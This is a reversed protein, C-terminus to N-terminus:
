ANDDDPIGFINKIRTFEPDKEDSKSVVHVHELLWKLSSWVRNLMAILIGDIVLLILIVGIELSM